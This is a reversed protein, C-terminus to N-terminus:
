RTSLSRYSVSGGGFSSELFEWDFVGHRSVIDVLEQFFVPDSRILSVCYTKGFKRELIKLARGYPIPKRVPPPLVKSLRQKCFDSAEPFSIVKDLFKDYNSIWHHVTQRSVEQKSAKLYILWHNAFKRFKRLNSFEPIKRRFYLLYAIIPFPIKSIPYGKAVDVSFHRHCDKCLFQLKGGYHHGNKVIKHSHCNPCFHLLKDDVGRRSNVM